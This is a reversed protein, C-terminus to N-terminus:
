LPVFNCGNPLQVVAQFNDLYPTKRTWIKGCKSQIHLNLGYIEANIEFAPFHSGSIYDVLDCQWHHLRLCVEGSHENIQKGETLIGAMTRCNFICGLFQVLQFPILNFKELHIQFLFKILLKVATLVLWLQWEGFIDRM